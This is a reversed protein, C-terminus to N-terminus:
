TVYNVLTVSEGQCLLTDGIIEIQGIPYKNVIVNIPTSMKSYIGKSVRVTYNGSSFVKLNYSTADKILDGNVFWQYSYSEDFYATLKSSDGECFSLESKQYITAKPLSNYEVDRYYDLKYLRRNFFFWVAGNNDISLSKITACHIKENYGDYLNICTKSFPFTETTSTSVILLSLGADTGIWKNGKNDIILSYVNDSSLGTNYRVSFNWSGFNNYNSEILTARYDFSWVGKDTALWKMGNADSIISRIITPNYTYSNPSFILYSLDHWSGNKYLVVGKDTGIWINEEVDIHFCNIKSNIFLNNTFDIWEKKNVNFKSFSYSYSKKKDPIKNQFGIILNDFRDISLATIVGRNLSDYITYKLGDYKIIYNYISNSGSIFWFNGKNDRIFPLEKDINYEFNAYLPFLTGKRTWNTDNYTAIGALYNSIFYKKNLSDIYINLGHNIYTGSFNISSDLVLNSDLEPISDFITWKTTDIQGFSFNSLFIISLVLKVFFRKM